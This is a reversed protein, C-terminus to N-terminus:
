GKQYIPSNSSLRRFGYVSPQRVFDDHTIGAFVIPDEVAEVKEIVKGSHKNILNKARNVEPLEPMTTASSRPVKRKPTVARMLERM